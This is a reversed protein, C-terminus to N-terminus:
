FNKREKTLKKQKVDIYLYLYLYLIYIKPISNMLPNVLKKKMCEERKTHFIYICIKATRKYCEQVECLLFEINLM